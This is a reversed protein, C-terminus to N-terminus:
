ERRWGKAFAQMAAERTPEYGHTARRINATTAARGCGPPAGAARRAIPFHPGRRRRAGAVVREATATALGARASEVHDLTFGLAFIQDSPVNRKRIM